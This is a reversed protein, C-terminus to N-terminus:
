TIFMEPAAEKAFEAIRQEERAAYYAEFAAYREERARRKKALDLRRQAEEPYVDPEDLSRISCM